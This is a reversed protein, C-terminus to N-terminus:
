LPGEVGRRDGSSRLPDRIGSPIPPQSDSPCSTPAKSGMMLRLALVVGHPLSPATLQLAIRTRLVGSRPGTLALRHRPTLPLSHSLRGSASLAHGPSMSTPESRVAAGRASAELGWRPGNVARMDACPGHFRSGSSPPSVSSPLELSPV